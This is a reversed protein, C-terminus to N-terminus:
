HRERERQRRKWALWILCQHQIPVMNYCGVCVCVCICLGLTFGSIWVAAPCRCEHGHRRTTSVCATMREQITGYTLPVDWVLELAACVSRMDNSCEVSTMCGKEKGTFIKLLLLVLACLSKHATQYSDQTVSGSLWSLMGPPSMRKVLAVKFNLYLRRRGGRVLASDVFCVNNLQGVEGRVLWSFSLTKTDPTFHHREILWDSVADLRTM